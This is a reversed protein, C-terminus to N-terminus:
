LWVVSIITPWFHFEFWSFMGRKKQEGNNKEGKNESWERGLYVLMLGFLILKNKPAISSFKNPKM